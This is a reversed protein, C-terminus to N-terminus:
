KLSGIKEILEEFSDVKVKACSEGFGWNVFIFNVGANIAVEEDKISDGVVVSEHPKANFKELIHEVMEPHPKPFEFMNAGVVLDFYSDLKHYKLMKKAFFDSANTALAIKYEISLRELAEKAGNFPKSNQVCNKHYHEFFIERCESKGEYLKDILEESPGYLIDAIEQKDLKKLESKSRAFNVSQSIADISDIITGDMDFIVVRKM